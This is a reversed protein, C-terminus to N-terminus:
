LREIGLPHVAPVGAADSAELDVEARIAWERYGDPDDLLQRVLWSGPREEVQFLAASRADAGTRIAAHADFYPQLAQQWVTADWGADADLEGLQAWNRTAALEVRRFLANRVMVGFARRNATVPLPAADAPPVVPGAALAEPHRLLEWEDLLSSDVQRVLEGLWETLDLVEDTKAEEPVAQVLAKYADSLYRLLLGESRPLQYLAVYDGFGMAREYLERAVSKPAINHDAAWPHHIRYADFLEYTFERLPKPYELRDLIEIREEYEVGEAKLRGLTESRLRDLQAALIPGPNDLTSEVVSLVDLAYTPSTEELRPIAELIFPSLPQNLAFDQQLDVTVRVLRGLHDPRDLREIVGAADLSRFIAIARRIHRRQAARPEDNDTLLRRLARCGDGPRDLVNLIMSHSVAFSSTLPEPPAAVIRNFTDETWPVFGKPPQSRVVKRRKRPDDGARALAQANDIDHEPAEVVVSGAIDFGARGARGAIQHFERATLLRSTTGDYKSLQTFVVTRIPVNIGVGLTDTGCIVKLHGDQALREVLRRYKPLMGAHHVGVGHRVFRSLTRGFGPAFRFEGIADAIADKDQRSAVNVSMLAQAREAAGAQTSHVVYIPARDAALLDELTRHLPTRAYTYDLPVPRTASSVVATRRGTRRTLDVEFRRVDGLTASMLIFQTDKLELLPVQWAWGRSPDAYFHFEDMVVQDIGADTGRRLAINALVEATCCIVPANANVAADGTLMGVNDSGLHRCLEFFKESVLAKIPASYFSRGGTALTAFHAGLAVLSKGSGTPTNVIVHAGALVELLADEQHPYLTLGAEAAWFVFADLIAEPTPDLPALEVLPAV